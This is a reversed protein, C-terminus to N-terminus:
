SLPFLDNVFEAFFEEGTARDNVRGEPKGTRVIEELDLWSPILQKSIHKFFGGMYGPKTTVLYMSSEPTTRYQLSEKALLDLGVLCNLVARWGRTSGKAYEAVEQVTHPTTDLFDFIRNRIAVEITLPPAFGWAFQMIREPSNSDPTM